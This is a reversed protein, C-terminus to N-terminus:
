IKLAFVVAALEWDHYSYNVMMPKLNRLCLCDSEWAAKTCLGLGSRLLMVTFRFDVSVLITFLFIPCSDLRQKLEEFSKEREQVIMCVTKGGTVSTPDQGNQHICEFEEGSGNTIRRSFVINVWLHVTLRLGFNASPFAQCIFEGTTFNQEDLRFFVAPMRSVWFAYGLFEFHGFTAFLLRQFHGADKVECSITVLDFDIKFLHNAGQLQTLIFDAIGHFPIRIRITIQKLNVPRRYM